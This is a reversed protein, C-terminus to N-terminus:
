HNFGLLFLLFYFYTTKEEGDKLYYHRLMGELVFGVENAVKGIESLLDHKKLKRIELHPALLNWDEDSLKIFKEINNRLPSFM